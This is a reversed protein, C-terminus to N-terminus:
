IYKEGKTANREQKGDEHRLSFSNTGPEHIIYFEDNTSPLNKIIKDMIKEEDVRSVNFLITKNLIKEPLFSFKGEMLAFVNERAIQLEKNKM